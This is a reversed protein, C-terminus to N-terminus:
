RVSPLWADFHSLAQDQWERLTFLHNCGPVLHVDVARRYREDRDLLPEKVENEFDYRLADTEGYLMLLKTDQRVLHEMAELYHRNQRPHAPKKPADPPPPSIRDKVKRVVKKGLGRGAATLYTTITRLDSKGGLLRKYADVSFLKKAYLTWLQASAHEASITDLPSQQESDMLVPTSSLVLGDVRRSARPAALLATIGGGCLGWLLLKKPGVLEDMARIAAVADSAFRGAQISGFFDLMKEDEISGDSDGMGHPDWRLSSYGRKALARALTPYQFTSGLRGRAGSHVFVVGVERSAAGGPDHLIGRLENEGSRFSVPKEM